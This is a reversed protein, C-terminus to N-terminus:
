ENEIFGFSYETVFNDAKSLKDLGTALFVNYLAEPRKTALAQCIPHFVKPPATLDIQCHAETDDFWFSWRGLNNDNAPPALLVRMTSKVFEEEDDFGISVHCVLVGNLVIFNTIEGKRYTVHRGWKEGRFEGYTALREIDSEVIM